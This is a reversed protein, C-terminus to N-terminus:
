EKPTKTTPDQNDKPTKTTTTQTLFECDKSENLDCKTPDTSDINCSKSYDKLQSPDDSCFMAADVICDQAEFDDCAVSVGGNFGFAAYIAIEKFVETADNGYFNCPYSQEDPCYTQAAYFSRTGTGYLTLSTSSNGYIIINECTNDTNASGGCRVTCDYGSPCNVTKDDCAGEDSQCRVTCDEGESCDINVSSCSPARM